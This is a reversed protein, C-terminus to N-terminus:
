NSGNKKDMEGIEQWIDAIGQIMEYTSKYNKNEDLIDFGQFGNSAVRTANLITDRLKSVTTFVGETEEGM